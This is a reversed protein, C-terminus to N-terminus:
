KKARAPSTRVPSRKSPSPTAKRERATKPYAEVKWINLREDYVEKYAQHTRRLSVRVAGTATYVHTRGLNTPLALQEQEAKQLEAERAAVERRLEEMSTFNAETLELILESVDSMDLRREPYMSTLAAVMTDLNIPTESGSSAQAASKALERSAERAHFLQEYQTDAVYFLGSLANLGKRLHQPIDLESKYDLYHSIAAWAHMCLTRVQVEFELGKIADYRRGAVSKRLRCIYHVSMYGFSDHASEIKNDVSKVEFEARLLRDVREIDSMFLCIIRAGVIDNIRKIRGASRNELKKSISEFTKVRCEIDHIKIAAESIAERIIYQVEQALALYTPKLKDYDSQTNPIPNTM